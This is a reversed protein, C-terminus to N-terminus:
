NNLTFTFVTTGSKVSIYQKDNLMYTIPSGRLTAGTYFKWMEEGTRADFAHFDGNNEGVFILDGATAMAGAGSGVNSPIIKQWVLAGTTVDWATVFARGPRGSNNPSDIGAFYALGTRPSYAAPGGTQGGSGINPASMGRNLGQENVITNPVYFHPVVQWGEDFRSQPIDTAVLPVTNMVQGFANYQYPQTPWPTEGPRNSWAQVPVEQITMGPLAKGTVRDFMYLLGNKCATAMGKVTQGNITTDFMVPQQAWDYDWIDNHVAQFFGDGIGDGTYDFGWGEKLRGTKLDLALLCNTFLILGARQTGAFPVPNSVTIFLLGLEPDIAPTQWIGGGLRQQLVGDPNPQWTPGALDWYPDTADQPITNFTWLLKGTKGDIAQVLGGTCNQESRGASAYLVGDYYTPANPYAYGKSQGKQIDPFRKQLHELVADVRGGNGFSTILEGTAPDHAYISSGSTAYLVGDGFAFGKSAGTFVENPELAPQIAGGTARFTWIPRGTEADVAFIDGPPNPTYMIGDLITSTAQSTTNQGHQLNNGATAQQSVWAVSLGKVNSTNIQDM